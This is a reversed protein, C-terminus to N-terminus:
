AEVVELIEGAEIKVAYDSEGDGREDYYAQLRETAEGALAHLETEEAQGEAADKTGSWAVSFKLRNLDALTFTGSLDTKLSM